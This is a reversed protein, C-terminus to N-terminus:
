RLQYIRYTETEYIVPYSYVARSVLHTARYKNKLREIQEPSLDNFAAEIEESATEAKSIQREGTLDNIRARWESLRDYTPYAFSAVVSRRSFYWVDRRNPAALVLADLAANQEVWAFSKRLDDPAATLGDRTARIQQWGIRFPNILFIIILAFAGVAIKRKADTTQSVARFVTFLFFLLTFIPFLRTPMLRLLSYMDLGRLAFGLAFFVALIMQFRVLFRLAFNESRWLRVLNFVFMAALLVIGSKPFQFPDLISAARVTVIFEWDAVSSAGGAAGFLLPLVGPLACLMTVLAIKLLDALATRESWLAAGTALIAWLGVAPHFAFAFGLLAAPFLKGGKAFNQLAFLLFVYAVTKAEFGGFIWEEGVISQWAALWLFIAAGTALFSIEWSRGLRIIAVLCLSWVAVRGLWGVIEIPLVRAPFGFLFNFFWHENAPQSFTWDFPLGPALRLLYVFENSHPVAKGHFAFIAALLAAFCVAFRVTESKFFHNTTKEGANM